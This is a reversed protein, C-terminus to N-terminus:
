RAVVAPETTSEPHPDPDEAVAMVRGDVIELRLDCGALTTLRHAVMFTTRGHMLREVAEIIPAETRTDIASTPEDLILIPADCLFARALSIRQREGGSLTLGRGGVITGYGDPLRAIFDHANALRAAAVIEGTTAEPRAYAINEGITRSFLVPEQLVVAFQTRLDEIRVDRLDIGDLLIRGADPDYFRMLLGIFTTKGSGTVGQIGVRAGAPVDGTVERLVPRDPDHGFTVAEFQFAGVARRLPRAGPRSEVDHPQDLVAYAREASTLSSQITAVSQTLTELPVYLLAMYGIVLILDGLTLIGEQVHIVGVFLVLATGVATTLSTLLGILGEIGYVQLRATLSVSSADRFRRHEREEQGFGKVVRLNGIVEEIVSISSTELRKVTRWRRRLNHRSIRALIVLVPAVAVAIIALELDIMATIYVMAILTLAAAIFPTVGHVAVWTISPADYQIRYISDSTGARDHYSLSLRQMHRFLRARFDLTLHEGTYTGLLLAAIAQVRTLTAVVILLLASFVLLATSATAPDAVLPELVGPVPQTGLVNDVVIKLPLPTLLALPTAALDVAFILAIHRWWPRADRLLRAYLALDGRGAPSHEGGPGSGSPHTM